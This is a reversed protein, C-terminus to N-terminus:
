SDEEGIILELDLSTNQGNVGNYKLNDLRARGNGSLNIRRCDKKLVNDVIRFRFGESIGSYYAGDYFNSLDVEMSYSTDLCPLTMSTEDTLIEEGNYSVYTINNPNLVTDQGTTNIRTFQNDSCGKIYISGNIENGTRSLNYAVDINGECTEIRLYKRQKQNDYFKNRVKEASEHIETSIIRQEEQEIDLNRKLTQFTLGTALLIIAINRIRSKTM